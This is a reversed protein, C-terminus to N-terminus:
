GHRFLLLLGFLLCRLGSGFFEANADEEAAAGALVLYGEEGGGGDEFGDVLCFVFYNGYSDGFLALPEGGGIGLVQECAVCFGRWDLLLAGGSLGYCEAGACTM